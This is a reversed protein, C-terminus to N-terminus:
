MNEFKLIKKKFYGYIENCKKKWIMWFVYYSSFRKSNEDCEQISEWM